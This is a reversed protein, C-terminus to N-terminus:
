KKLQPNEKQHVGLRGPEGLSPGMSGVVKHCSLGLALEISGTGVERVHVILGLLFHEKFGSHYVKWTGTHSLSFM